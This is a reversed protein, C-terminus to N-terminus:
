IILALTIRNLPSFFFIRLFFFFFFPLFNAFSNNMLFFFFEIKLRQYPATSPFPFCFFLCRPFSFLFFFSTLCSDCAWLLLCVNNGRQAAHRLQGREGQQVHSREKKKERLVLRKLRPWWFFFVPSIRNTVSKRIFSM